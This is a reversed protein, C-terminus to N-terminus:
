SSVEASKGSLLKQTYVITFIGGEIVHSWDVTYGLKEYFGVAEKRSTIVIKDYGLEAIWCEAEEIVLRGIGQKRYSSLVCVREIKAIKDDEFYLRCTGVPLNGDFAVVYKTEPTDHEDIEGNVSINFEKVMGEIRVYYAAARQWTELARIVQM